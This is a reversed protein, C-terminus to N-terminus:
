GNPKEQSALLAKVKMKWNYDHQAPPLKFGEKLLGLLDDVDTILEPVLTRANTIFPVNEGFVCAVATIDDGNFNVVNAIGATGEMWPGPTAKAALEKARERDVMTTKLEM